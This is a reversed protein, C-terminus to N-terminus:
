TPFAVLYDVVMDTVMWGSSVAPQKQVVRGLKVVVVVAQDALTVLVAQYLEAPDALELDAFEVSRFLM